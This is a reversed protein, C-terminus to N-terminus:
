IVLFLELGEDLAELRLLVAYQVLLLRLNHNGQDLFLLALEHRHTGSDSNTLIDFKHLRSADRSILMLGGSLLQPLAVARGSILLELRALALFGTEAFLRAM